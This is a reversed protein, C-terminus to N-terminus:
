EKLRITYNDSTRIGLINRTPEITFLNLIQKGTAVIEGNNTVIEIRNFELDNFQIPTAIKRSSIIEIKEGKNLITQFCSDGKKINRNFRNEAINKLNCLKITVCEGTENIIQGSYIPDCSILPAILTLYKIKKLM